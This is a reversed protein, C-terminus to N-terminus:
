QRWAMKQAPNPTQAAAVFARLSKTSVRSDNLFGVPLQPLTKGATVALLHSPQPDTM